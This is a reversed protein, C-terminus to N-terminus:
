TVKLGYMRFTSLVAWRTTLNAPEVVQLTDGAQTYEAGRKDLDFFLLDLVDPRLSSVDVTHTGQQEVLESITKEIENM